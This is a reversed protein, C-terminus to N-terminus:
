IMQLSLALPKLSQLQNMRTRIWRARHLCAVRTLARVAEGHLDSIVAIMSEGDDQGTRVSAVVVLASEPQGRQAAAMDVLLDRVLASVLVVRSDRVMASIVIVTATVIRDIANLVTLSPAIVKLADAKSNGALAKALNTKVGPAIPAGNILLVVAFLVAGLLLMTMVVVIAMAVVELVIRLLVVVMLVVGGLAQVAEGLLDVVPVAIVPVAMVPVASAQGEEELGVEELVVEEVLVAEKVLVGGAVLDAV